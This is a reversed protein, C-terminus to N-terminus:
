KRKRAIGTFTISLGGLVPGYALLFSDGMPIFGFWTGLTYLLGLSTIVLGVKTIVDAQKNNYELLMKQQVANDLQKVIIKIEDEEMGNKMLEKRVDYITFDTNNVKPLYYNIIKARDTM